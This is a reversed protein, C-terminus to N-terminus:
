APPPSTRFRWALRYRTTREPASPEPDVADPTERDSSPVEVPNALTGYDLQSLTAVEAQTSVLDIGPMQNNKEQDKQDMNVGTKRRVM